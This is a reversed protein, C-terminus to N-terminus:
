MNSSSHFREPEKHWHSVTLNPQYLHSFASPERLVTRKSQIHFTLPNKVVKIEAVEKSSIIFFIEPCMLGLCLTTSCLNGNLCCSCIGPSVGVVKAEVSCSNADTQAKPQQCSSSIRSCSMSLAASRRIRSFSKIPSPVKVRVWAPSSPDCISLTKCFFQGPNKETRVFCHSFQLLVVLM